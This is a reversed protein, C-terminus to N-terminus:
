NAGKVNFCLNQITTSNAALNAISIGVRCNAPLNVVVEKFGTEAIAPSQMTKEFMILPCVVENTVLLTKVQDANGGLMSCGFSIRYDGANTTVFCTNTLSGIGGFTKIYSFATFTNTSISTAVVVSGTSMTACGYAGFVGNTGVITDSALANSVIVRAYTSSGYSNLIKLENSNPSSFQAHSNVQIAPSFIDRYAALDYTSITVPRVSATGITYTLDKVFSINGSLTINSTGINGSWGAASGFAVVQNTSGGALASATLNTIGGGNAYLVGNTGVYLVKAGATTNVEMQNTADVSGTSGVKLKQGIAVFNTFVAQGDFQAAALFENYNSWFNNGNLFAVAGPNTYVLSTFGNTQSLVDITYAAGNTGIFVNTGQVVAFNTSYSSPLFAAPNSYVIGSFGNTQSPVNVEVVTGNTTLVVNTGQLLGFSAGSPGNTPVDIRYTRTQGVQTFTVFVNTGATAQVVPATNVTFFNRQIPLGAAITLFVLVTVASLIVTRMQQRNPMFDPGYYNNGFAEPGPRFM